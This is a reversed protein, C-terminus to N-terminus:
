VYVDKKLDELTTKHMNKGDIAEKIIKRTKANPIKMDSPFAKNSAIQKFFMTIAQTTNVGYKTLISEVEKKLQPEIKTNIVATLM